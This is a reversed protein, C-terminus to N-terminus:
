RGAQERIRGRAGVRDDASRAALTPSALPVCISHTPPWRIKRNSISSAGASEDACAGAAPVPYSRGFGNKTKAQGSTLTNPKTSYKTQPPRLRPPDPLPANPTARRRSSLRCDSMFFPEDSGTSARCEGSAGHPLVPRGGHGDVTGPAGPGACCRLLTQGKRARPEERGHSDRVPLHTNWEDQRASSEREREREVRM